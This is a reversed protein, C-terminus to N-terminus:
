VRAAGPDGPGVPRVRAQGSSAQVPQGGGTVPKGIVHGSQIVVPNGLGAPGTAGQLPAVRAQEGLDIFEGTAGLLSPDEELTETFDAVRVRSTGTLMTGTSLKIAYKGGPQVPASPTGKQQAGLFGNKLNEIVM